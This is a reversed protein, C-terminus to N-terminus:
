DRVDPRIRRRSPPQPPLRYPSDLKTLEGSILMQAILESDIEPWPQGHSAFEELSEYGSTHAFIRVPTLGSQDGHTWPRALVINEKGVLVYVDVTDRAEAAQGSTESTDSV